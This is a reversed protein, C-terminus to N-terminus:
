RCNLELMDAMFLQFNADVERELVRSFIACSEERDPQRALAQAAQRRLFSNGTSEVLVQELARVARPDDVSGLLEVARHRVNDKQYIDTAVRALLPAREIEESRAAMDWAGLMLDREPWTRSPAADLLIPGLFEVAAEPRYRGLLECAATRLAIDEAYTDLVRILTEEADPGLNAAAVQLLGKRVPLLAQPNEEFIKLAVDGFEWGEDGYDDLVRQRAQGYRQLEQRSADASPPVLSDMFSQMRVQLEPDVTKQVPPEEAGCAALSLLAFGALLAHSLAHVPTRRPTRSRM